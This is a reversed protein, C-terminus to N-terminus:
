AKGNVRTSFIALLQLLAITGVLLFRRTTLAEMVSIM